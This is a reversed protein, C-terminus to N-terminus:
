QYYRPNASAGGALSSRKRQVYAAMAAQTHDDCPAGVTGPTNLRNWTKATTPRGSEVRQRALVYLLCRRAAKDREVKTREADFAAHLAKGPAARGAQQNVTSFCGNAPM